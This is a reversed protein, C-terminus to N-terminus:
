HWNQASDQNVMSVIRRHKAGDGQQKVLANGSAEKHDDVIALVFGDNIPKAPREGRGRSEDYDLVLAVALCCVNPGLAEEHNLRVQIIKQNGGM